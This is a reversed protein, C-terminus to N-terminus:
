LESIHRLYEQIMSIEEQSGAGRKLMAIFDFVSQLMYELSKMTDEKAGYNGKSYQEKGESYDRFAEHMDEVTEEGRYRRGYNGETYRGQSDRARGRSYAGYETGYNGSYNGYKYKMDYVEEKKQWYEENALDKHVDVLKGLVDIKGIVGGQEAINNIEKELAEKLKKNM